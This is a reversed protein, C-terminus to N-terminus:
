HVSIEAEGKEIWKTLNEESRFIQDWELFGNEKHFKSDTLADIANRLLLKAAGVDGASIKLAEKWRLEAMRKRKKTLTYAKTKGSQQCFYEFLKEVNLDSPSVLTNQEKSRTESDTETHASLASKDIVSPKVESKKRAREEAKKQRNYERREDENRIDRYFLFTPVRYAYEGERILRKGDEVKSRSRDDSSCLFEIAKIIETESGGLVAALLKPNLEVQGNITNAIVYGWVAFVPLGAGFMSGTYTSAFFKGYM